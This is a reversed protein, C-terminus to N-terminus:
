ATSRTRCRRRRQRARANRPKSKRAGLKLISLVSAMEALGEAEKKGAPTLKGKRGQEDLLFHLRADLAKPQIRPEEFEYAPVVVFPTVGIPADIQDAADRALLCCTMPLLYSM